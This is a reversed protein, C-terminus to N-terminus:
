QLPITAWFEMVAYVEHAQANLGVLWFIHLPLKMQLIFGIKNNPVSTKVLKVSTKTQKHPATSKNAETLLSVM